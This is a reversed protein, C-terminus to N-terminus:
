IMADTFLKNHPVLLEIGSFNEPIAGNITRNKM